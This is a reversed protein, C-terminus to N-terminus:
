RQSSVRKSARPPAMGPQCGIRRPTRLLLGALFALGGLAALLHKLSHGSFGLLEFLAADGGEALKAAGYAGITAWIWANGAFPSAFLLLIAPILIVPLFQVLAYPRLDGRGELESLHWWGVSLLGLAILPGLLRRGAKLSMNEGVIVAFFAMFSLTMPLRDWVLSANSPNFHYFASGPGVLAMGAFFVLYATRLGELGGALRRRAVISTGALGVGSFSLSTVLNWFNPVGLLPRQDAFSHYALDQPFAPFLLTIISGAVAVWLILRVKLAFKPDPDM